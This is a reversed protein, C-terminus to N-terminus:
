PGSISSPAVLESVAAIVEACVPSAGKATETGSANVIRRLGYRAFVDANRSETTDM